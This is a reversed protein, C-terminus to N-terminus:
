EHRLAVIPDVRMERCVPLFSAGLAALTLLTGFGAFTLGDTASLGSLLSMILRKLALAVAPPPIGVNRGQARKGLELDRRNARAAGKAGVLIVRICAVLLQSPM